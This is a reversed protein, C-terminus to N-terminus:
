NMNYPFKIILKFYLRKFPICSREHGIINCRVTTHNYRKSKLVSGKILQNTWKATRTTNGMDWQGHQRLLKAPHLYTWLILLHFHKLNVQLWWKCLVVNYMMTDALQAFFEQRYPVNSISLTISVWQELWMSDCWSVSWSVQTCMLFM